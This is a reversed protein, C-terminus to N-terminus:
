WLRFVREGARERLRSLPDYPVSRRQRYDRDGCSGGRGSAPATQM